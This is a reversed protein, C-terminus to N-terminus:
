TIVGPAEFELVQLQRDPSDLVRMRATRDLVICGESADLDTASKRGHLFFGSRGFMENSPDPKLYAVDLGLAGHRPEHVGITYKGRPLPGIAHIGQMGPNNRGVGHGAYGIGIVTGNDSLMKGSSQFYTWM